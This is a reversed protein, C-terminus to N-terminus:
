WASQVAALLREVTLRPEPLERDSPASLRSGVWVRGTEAGPRKRSASLLFRGVDRRVQALGVANDVDTEAPTFAIQLRRIAKRLM